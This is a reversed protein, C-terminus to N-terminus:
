DVSKALLQGGVLETYPGGESASREEHALGVRRM